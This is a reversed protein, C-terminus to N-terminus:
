RVSILAVEVDDLVVEVLADAGDFAMDASATMSRWPRRNIALQVGAGVGRLVLAVELPDDLSHVLGQIGTIPGSL